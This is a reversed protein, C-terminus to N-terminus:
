ESAHSVDCHDWESTRHSCATSPSPGVFILPGRTFGERQPESLEMAVRTVSVRDFAYRDRGQYRMVGTSPTREPTSGFRSALGNM